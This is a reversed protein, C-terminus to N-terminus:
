HLTVTEFFFDGAEPSFDVSKDVRLAIRRLVSILLAALFTSLFTAVKKSSTAWFTAM